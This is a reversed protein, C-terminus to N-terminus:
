GIANELIAGILGGAKILCVCWELVRLSVKGRHDSLPQKTGLASRPPWPPWEGRFRHTQYADTIGSQQYGRCHPGSAIRRRRRRRRPRTTALTPARLYDLYACELDYYNMTDAGVGM